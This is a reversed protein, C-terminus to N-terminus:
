FGFYELVQPNVYQPSLYPAVEEAAYPDMWGPRTGNGYLSPGGMSPSWRHIQGSNILYAAGMASMAPDFKSADQPVVGWRKLDNWTGDTFQFLGAASSYPYPQGTNPNITVGDFGSNAAAAQPNFGSEYAAIDLLLNPSIGYKQAAANFAEVMDTRPDQSLLDMAKKTRGTYNSDYTPTPQERRKPTSSAKTKVTKTPSVVRVKSVKPTPTATPLFRPKKDEIVELKDVLPQIHRQAVRNDAWQNYRDAMRSFMNGNDQPTAQVRVAYGSPEPTVFGSATRRPAPVIPQPSVHSPQPSIPQAGGFWNRVSSIANEYASAM